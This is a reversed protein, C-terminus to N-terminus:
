KSDIQCMLNKYGYLVPSESFIPKQDGEIILRHRDSEFIATIAESVFLRTLLMGLCTHPGKGFALGKKEVRDINFIEPNKFIRPDRNAAGIWALITSHKPILKGDLTVDETARRPAALTVPQLRLSETIIGNKIHESNLVGQELVNYEQLIRLTNALFNPIDSNGLGLMLISLYVKDDYPLPATAIDSLLDDGPSIIKHLLFPSIYDRANKIALDQVSLLKKARESSPPLFHSVGELDSIPITISRVVEIEADPLGLLRCIAFSTIKEAFSEVLDFKGQESLSTVLSSTFAAVEKRMKEIQPAAFRSRVINRIATHEPPDIELISAAMDLSTFESTVEIQSSYLKYNSLVESVRRHTFVSYISHNGYDGAHVRGNQCMRALEPFPDELFATSLPTFSDCATSDIKDMSHVDILHGGKFPENKQM